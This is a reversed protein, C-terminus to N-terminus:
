GRDGDRALRQLTSWARTTARAGTLVQLLPGAHPGRSGDTPRATLLERAGLRVVVTSGTEAEFPSSVPPSLASLFACELEWAGAEYSAFPESAVLERLWRLSRVAVIESRGLVTGLSQELRDTVTPVEGAIASFTINGTALYSRPDAGGAAECLDLLVQRHLGERGIM